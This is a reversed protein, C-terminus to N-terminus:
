RITFMARSHGDAGPVKEGEVLRRRCANEDRRHDSHSQGQRQAHQHHPARLSRFLDKLLNSIFRLSNLTIPPANNSATHVGRFSLVARAAAASVTVTSS